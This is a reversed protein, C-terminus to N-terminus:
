DPGKIIVDTVPVACPPPPPPFRRRAEAQWGALVGLAWENFVWAAHGAHRERLRAVVDEPGALIRYRDCGPLIYYGMASLSIAVRCVGGSDAICAGHGIEFFLRRWEDRSQGMLRPASAEQPDQAIDVASTHRTGM